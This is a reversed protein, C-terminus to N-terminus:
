NNGGQGAQIGNSRWNEYATNLQKFLETAKERINKNKDPHFRLVMKKYAAKVEEKTAGPSVGSQARLSVVAFDLPLVEVPEVEVDTRLKWNGVRVRRGGGVLLVQAKGDVVKEIMGRGVLQM